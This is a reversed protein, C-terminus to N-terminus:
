RVCLRTLNAGGELAASRLHLLSTRPTNLIHRRLSPELCPLRTKTRGLGEVSVDEAELPGSDEDPLKDLLTTKGACRGDGCLGGDLRNEHM